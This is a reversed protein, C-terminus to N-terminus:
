IEFVNKKSVLSTVKIVKEEFRGVQRWLLSDASTLIINDSEM